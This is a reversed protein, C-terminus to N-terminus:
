SFLEKFEDRKQENERETNKNSGNISSQRDDVPRSRSMLPKGWRKIATVKTEVTKPRKMEQLREQVKNNKAERYAKRREKDKQRELKAVFEHSLADLEALLSELKYEIQALMYLPEPDDTISSSDSAEFIESIM